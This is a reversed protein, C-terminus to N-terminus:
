YRRRPSIAYRKGAGTPPDKIALGYRSALLALVQKQHDKNLTDLLAAVEAAIEFERGKTDTMAPM